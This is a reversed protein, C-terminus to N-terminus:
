PFFRWTSSFPHLNVVRNDPLTLYTSIGPYRGSGGPITEVTMTYGAETATAWGLREKLRPYIAYLNGLGRVPAFLGPPPSGPVDVPVGEQWTDEYSEFSADDYLVYIERTDERWVMHGREFPEYAAWVRDHTLPCRPAIYADYPCIIGATVYAQDLTGNADRAGLYYKVSEVYDEPVQLTISGRAPLDLAETALFINGEESLRTIGVSAAGPANWALTVMAGREVPDPRATFSLIQLPVLPTHTPPTTPTPPRTATAMPRPQPTDTPAAASLATPEAASTQIASPAPTPTSQSTTPTVDDDRVDVRPLDRKPEFCICTDTWSCASGSAEIEGDERLVVRMPDRPCDRVLIPKNLVIPGIMLTDEELDLVEKRHRAINTPCGAPWDARGRPAFSTVIQSGDALTFVATREDGDIRMEQIARTAAENAEGGNSVVTYEGSEIGM